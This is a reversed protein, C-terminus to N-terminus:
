LPPTWRAPEAWSPRRRPAGERKKVRWPHRASAEKSDAIRARGSGLSNVCRHLHSQGQRRAGAAALAARVEQGGWILRNRLEGGYAERSEFLLNKRRTQVSENLRSRRFRCPWECRHLASATRTM